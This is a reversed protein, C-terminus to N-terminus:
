SLKEKRIAAYAVYLLISIIIVVVLFTSWLLVEVFDVDPKISEVFVVNPVSPVLVIYYPNSIGTCMLGYEQYFKEVYAFLTDKVQRIELFKIYNRCGGTHGLTAVLVMWGDWEINEPISPPPYKKGHESWFDELASQNRIIVYGADRTWNEPSYYGYASNGGESITEFPIPHGPRVREQILFISALIALVIISSLIIIFRSPKTKKEVYQNKNAIQYSHTASMDLRKEWVSLDIHHDM